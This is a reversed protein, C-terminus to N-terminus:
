FKDFFTKNNLGNFRLRARKMEGYWLSTLMSAKAWDFTECDDKWWGETDGSHAITWACANKIDRQRLYSIFREGWNRERDDNQRWGFEGVFYHSSPITNPISKDWDAENSDGSFIYKHVEIYTRNWVDLRTLDMGACNGGWNPCGAFYHYKGPYRKEINYIVISHVNNAYQFANTAQIENFIGIGFLSPENQYRDIVQFWTDIFQNLSIEADPAPSQHSEFTRHYDLIVRINMLTCDHMMKDLDRMDSHQVYDYSFPIRVTNIFMDYKLRELYWMSNHQWDCVFHRRPTELGYINMCRIDHVESNGFFFVCILLILSLLKM